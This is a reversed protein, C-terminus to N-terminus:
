CSSSDVAASWCIMEGDEGDIREGIRKFKNHELVQQSPLNLVSTEARVTLVRRDDRAWSLLMAVAASAFGQKRRSQAVGYGIDIGGDAPQRVLSCLVVVEHGEVLLWSAPTFIPRITRALERLMEQTELTELGGDALRFRGPAHGKVMQEFDADTAEILIMM